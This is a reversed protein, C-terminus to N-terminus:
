RLKASRILMTGISGFVSHLCFIFPQNQGAQRSYDPQEGREAQITAACRLVKGGFHFPALDVIDHLSGSCNIRDNRHLNARLYRSRDRLEVDIEVRSNVFAIDYRKDIGSQEM